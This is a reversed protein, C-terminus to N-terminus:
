GRDLPLKEHNLKPLKAHNRVVSGGLLTETIWDITPGHQIEADPSLIVYVLGKSGCAAIDKWQRRDPSWVSAGPTGGHSALMPGELAIGSIHPFRGLQKAEAFTDM